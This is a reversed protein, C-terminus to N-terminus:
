RHNVLGYSRKITGITLQLPQAAQQHVMYLIIEPNGFANMLWEETEHLWDNDKDPTM